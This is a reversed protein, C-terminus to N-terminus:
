PRHNDDNDKGDLKSLVENVRNIKVRAGDRPNTARPLIGLL